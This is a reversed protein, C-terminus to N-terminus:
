CRRWIHRVDSATMCYSSSDSHSSSKHTFAPSGPSFGVIMRCTRESLEDPLEERSVDSLEVEDDMPM